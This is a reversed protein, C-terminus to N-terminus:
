FGKGYSLTLMVTYKNYIYADVNSNNINYNANLGAILTENLKKSFGAALTYSNDLRATANSSYNLLFYSLKTNFMTDWYSKTMFGAGLDIREFIFNKGVASNHTFSGDALFIKSKEKNLFFLNADTIKINIASENDDGVSSNLNANDQRLEFNYNAFWNENMVFTSLGKLLFSSFIVKNTNDESSMSLSEYGPVLDFKAGKGMFVGKFTYPFTVDILLPDTNHVTQDYKLSSDVTYINLVDLQAAFEHDAEYTPRYRLTGMTLLREGATNTPQNQLATDSAFIVNSDTILGLTGGVYWKHAREAEFQQARIIQEIYGEAREDLKANKSNDLVAQFKEQAEKYHVQEFFGVGIYFQASGSLSENNSVAVEEFAAAADKYLKLRYNNLGVYYNIEVPDVQSKQDLDMDKALDLLVLSRNFQEAKYLTIALQFYYAKSEPDSVTANEFKQLADQLKGTQFDVLGNKALDAAEKRKEQKQGASLLNFTKINESAKLSEVQSMRAREILSASARKQEDLQEALAAADFASRTVVSRSRLDSDLSTIRSLEEEARFARMALKAQDKSDYIEVVQIGNKYKRLIFAKRKLEGSKIMDTIKGMGEKAEVFEQPPIYFEPNLAELSNWSLSYLGSFVGSDPATEELSIQIIRGTRGERLLITASDIKEPDKNWPPYGYSLKTMKSSDIPVRTDRKKEPTSEEAYSFHFCFILAFLIRFAM